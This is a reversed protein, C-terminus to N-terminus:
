YKSTKNYDVQLSTLNALGGKSLVSLAIDAFEKEKEVEDDYFNEPPVVSGQDNAKGITSFQQIFGPQQKGHKQIYRQAYVRSSSTYKGLCLKLSRSAISM